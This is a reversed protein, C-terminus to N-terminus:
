FGVLGKANIGLLTSVNQVPVVNIIVPILGRIHIQDIDQFEVPLPSGSQDMKINLSEFTRSLDIGGVASSGVGKGAPSSNKVVNGNFILGRYGDMTVVDGEKFQRGGMKIKKNGLDIEIDKVMSIYPMHYQRSWVSFHQSPGGHATVVGLNKGYYSKDNRDPTNELILIANEGDSMAKRAQDLSLCIPGAMVGGSIGGAIVLSEANPFIENKGSLTEAIEIQFAAEEKTLIKEQVLDNLSKKLAQAGLHGTRAQLFHLKEGRTIELEVPGGFIKELQPKFIELMEEDEVPLINHVQRASSRKGVVSEGTAGYIAEIDFKDEGTMVDRTHAVATYSEDNLYGFEMKQFIVSVKWSDPLGHLALFNEIEPTTSKNMIHDVIIEIQQWPDEPIKIKSQKLFIKLGSLFDLLSDIDQDDGLFDDMNVRDSLNPYLMDAYTKLFALYSILAFKEGRSEKLGEFVEQNMGVNLVTPFEGPMSVQFVSRLSFLLPNKPDGIKTGSSKEIEKIQNELEDRVENIDFIDKRPKARIVFWPPVPMGLKKMIYLGFAKSGIKRMQDETASEFSVILPIHDLDVPVNVIKRVKRQSVSDVTMTLDQPGEMEDIIKRCDLLFRESFQRLMTSILFDQVFGLSEPTDEYDNVGQNKQMAEVRFKFEKVLNDVNDALEAEIQQILGYIRYYEKEEGLHDSDRLKILNDAFVNLAPQAGISHSMNKAIIYVSLIIDKVNELSFSKLSANSRVL